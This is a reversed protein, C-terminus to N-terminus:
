FYASEAFACIQGLERSVKHIRVCLCVCVRRFMRYVYVCVCACVKACNMRLSEESFASKAFTCIQDLERSVKYIYACVVCVHVYACVHVCRQV